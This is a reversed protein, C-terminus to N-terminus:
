SAEHTQESLVALLKNELVQGTSFAGVRLASKAVDALAGLGVLGIVESEAVAVGEAAAAQAVFEYAEFIPTTDTDTLNMSVQVRGSERMDVAMARVKPLGGSSERVARAIRKGLELDTTALNVNFAVLPKRAGVATVGATPHVDPGGVDPQRGAERIAGDRLAEFGGKRIAPLLRRNPDHAADEYLYTPIALQQWIEAALQRAVLVADETTTGALPVFPIVDTAGMRPHEGQHRTLDILECAVACADLCAQRLADPDGVATIVARNHTADMEQDLLFVDPRRFAAAIRDVVEPRRGESFNPIAEMLRM